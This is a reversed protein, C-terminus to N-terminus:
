FNLHSDMHITGNSIMQYQCEVLVGSVPQSIGVVVAAVLVAAVEVVVALAVVHDM